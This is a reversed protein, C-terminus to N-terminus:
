EYRFPFLMNTNDDTHNHLSCVDQLEYTIDNILNIKLNNMDSHSCCITNGDAHNHLSCADQLEYTINNMLNIKLNNMDSLSCCITNDDAHNHLSCVDQLEYTINNIFINILGWYRDGKQM